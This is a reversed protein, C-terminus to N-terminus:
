NQYTDKSRKFLCPPGGRDTGSVREPASLLKHFLDRNSRGFGSFMPGIAKLDFSGASSSRPSTSNRWTPSSSSPCGSALLPLSCAATLPRHLRQQVFPQQEPDGAVRLYIIDIPGVGLLRMM